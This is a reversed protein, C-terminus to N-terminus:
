FRSVEYVKRVHDTERYGQTATNDAAQAEETGAGIGVAVAGLAGVGLGAARFLDRRALTTKDKKDKMAEGM